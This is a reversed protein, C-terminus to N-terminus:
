LDASILAMFFPPLWLQKVMALVDFFFVKLYAPTGKIISLSQYAKDNYIFSKVTELFNESSFGAILHNSCVKKM